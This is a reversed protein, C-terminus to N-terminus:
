ELQTFGLRRKRRRTSREHKWGDVIWTEMVTRSFGTGQRLTGVQGGTCMGSEMALTRDLTTLTTYPGLAM